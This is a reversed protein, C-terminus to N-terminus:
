SDSAKRREPGSYTASRGRRRDPGVYSKTEIHTVPNEMVAVIHELLTRPSLPKVMYYNVGADRAKRVRELESFGSVMLVPLRPDIEGEGRRLRRTFEVGDMPQMDYDVIILDAQYGKSLLDLAQAAGTVSKIESISLTRLIRVVLQRMHENDEVLLIHLRDFEDASFQKEPM